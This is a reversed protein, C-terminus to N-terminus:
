PTTKMLYDRQVKGVAYSCFYLVMMIILCAMFGVAFRDYDYLMVGDIASQLFRRPSPPSWQCGCQLTWGVPCSPLEYPAATPGSSPVSTPGKSPARTFPVATPGGASPAVTSPRPAATPGSSPAGTFPVAPAPNYQCGCLFSSFPFEDDWEGSHWVRGYDQGNGGNDPQGPTWNTYTSSCGTIWGYQKTGKGGGYPLMDTYGIWYSSEGYQSKIWANEAANNVCLMTAGSYSTPCFVNCQDWAGSKSGSNFVPNILYCIGGYQVWGSACTVQGYSPTLISILLTLIFYNSLM